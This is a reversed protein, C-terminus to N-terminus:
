ADKEGKAKEAWPFLKNFSLKFSYDIILGILGIIILGAFINATQLFRQALILRHGLGINAAVVEVLIVLAWAGAMEIRCVDFIRPLSRPLIVKRLVNIKKAGLTYATEVYEKEVNAVINATYLTIYPLVGIFIIFLKQINGIGFWLMSLPIFTAAPIYRLINIMTEIIGEIVKFSGLIIGLTIGVIAALIFGGFARLVSVGVDKIIGEKIFLNILANITNTPTSLFLENVLGSYSLIGWILFVLFIGIAILSYYLKKPIGKKLSFLETKVKIVM